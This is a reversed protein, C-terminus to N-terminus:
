RGTAGAPADRVERGAAAAGRCRRTRSAARAARARRRPARAHVALVDPQRGDRVPRLRVERRGEGERRVRLPDAPDRAVGLDAVPHRLLQARPEAVRRQDRDELGPRREGVLAALEDGVLGRGPDGGEGGPSRAGGLDEDGADLRQELRRERGVVQGRVDAREPRADRIPM